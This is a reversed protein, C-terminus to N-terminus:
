SSVIVRDSFRSRWPPSSAVVARRAAQSASLDAIIGLTLPQDDDMWLHEVRKEIGNDFVRFEERQLDRVPAGHPDVAAVSITVLRVNSRFAPQDQAVSATALVFYLFTRTAIGMRVREARNECENMSHASHLLIIDRIVRGHSHDSLLLPQLRLGAGILLTM